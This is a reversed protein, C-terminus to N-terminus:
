ATLVEMGLLHGLRVVKDFCDGYVLSMHNGVNSQKDFFDYGDAVKVFVGLSCGSDDQGRGAVVEGRAVLMRRCSPDVRLYTIKQGIDQNFDYRMTVGWGSATFPALSYKLPDSDFGFLKRNPVSHFTFVINEADDMLRQKYSQDTEGDQNFVFLDPMEGTEHMQMPWHITNGMYAASHNINELIAMSINACLDFECSSPIGLENLLSHNMCFTYHEENFRTTACLDPCPASFANCGYHDLMKRIMYYARFSNIVEERSMRCEEARDILEDAMACIEQYEEETPNLGTRIPLTENSDAKAVHTQDIFEHGNLFRYQIGFRDTAATYNVLNDGCSPSETSGLRTICLVKTNQLAKRARLIELLEVTKEWTRPTYAELDRSKLCASIDMTCPGTVPPCIVIPKGAERAFPVIIDAIRALPPVLYVDVDAVDAMAEAYKEDDCLFEENRNWEYGKMMNLGAVDGLNEEVAAKEAKVSEAIQTLDYDRTLMYGGGLRCPGEFVLEHYFGFYLPKVNLEVDIGRNVM